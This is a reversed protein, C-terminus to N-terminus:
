AAELTSPVSYEASLVLKQGDRLYVATTKLPVIADKAESRTAQRLSLVSGSNEIIYYEIM